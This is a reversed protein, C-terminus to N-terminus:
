NTPLGRRRPYDQGFSFSVFLDNNVRYELMGVGRSGSAFGPGNAADGSVSRSVWECSAAFPIGGTSLPASPLITAPTSSRRSRVSQSHVGYTLQALNRDIGLVAVSNTSSFDARREFPLVPGITM